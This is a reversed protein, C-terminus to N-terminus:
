SLVMKQKGYAFEIGFFYRSKGMNKTVFHIRFHEKIQRIGMTDSDTVLIDDVYVVLLVGM